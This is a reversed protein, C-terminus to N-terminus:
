KITMEKIEAQWERPNRGNNEERKNVLARPVERVAADLDNFENKMLPELRFDPSDYEVTESAGFLLRLDKIECFALNAEHLPERDDIFRPIDDPDDIKYLSLGKGVAYEQQSFLILIIEMVVKRMHKVFKDLEYFRYPKEM